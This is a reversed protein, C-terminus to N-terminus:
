SQLLCVMKIPRSGERKEAGAAKRRGRQIELSCRRKEM